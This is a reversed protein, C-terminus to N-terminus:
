SHDRTRRSKYLLFIGALVAPISLIQGMTLVTSLLHSQEVKWYEVIFRFGFVLILFIGILKGQAMLYKLRFSLRWLLLFVLAYFLAEYLQVPHRPVPLSHDAAHGFVVAWSVDTATGLIEQNFFNGIRIFVAALATPVSIFDLLHLWSLQRASAKYRYIFIGLAIVIAVAAGHSALGGKWIELIELPHRLYDSPREYFFYHGLRAGLVTAVVIYVTLRDTLFVAQKKLSLIAHPFLLEIKLRKLAQQPHLSCSAFGAAKKPLKTEIPENSVLWENLSQCLPAKGKRAVESFRPHSWEGVIERPEFEPRALFFRELIGVFIPFGLIFGLAFLLGYWLVPVGLWPVTFIEPKPDWYFSAFLIM